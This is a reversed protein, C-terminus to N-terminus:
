RGWDKLEIGPFLDDVTCDLVMALKEATRLSPRAWGREMRNVASPHLGARGALECQMLGRNRRMRRLPNIM